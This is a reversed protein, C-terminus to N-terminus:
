HPLREELLPVTNSGAPLRVALQQEGEEGRLLYIHRKGDVVGRAHVRWKGAGGRSVLSRSRLLVDDGEIQGRVERWRGVAQHQANLVQARCIFRTGDKSSWHPEMRLAYITIAILVIITLAFWVIDPM